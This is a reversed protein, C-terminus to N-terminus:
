AVKELLDSIHMAVEGPTFLGFLYPLELDVTLERSWRHQEELLSRHLTAIEGV